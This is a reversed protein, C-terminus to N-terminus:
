LFFSSSSCKFAWCYYCWVQMLKLFCSNIVAFMFLFGTSHNLCSEVNHSQLGLHREEQSQWGLTETKWGWAPHHLNPFFFAWRSWSCPELNGCWRSMRLTCIFQVARYSKIPVNKLCLQINSSQIKCVYDYYWKKNISVQSLSVLGRAPLSWKIM